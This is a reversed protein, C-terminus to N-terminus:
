GPERPMGRVYPWQLSFARLRLKEQLFAAAKHGDSSNGGYVTPLYCLFSNLGFTKGVQVGSANTRHITADGLVQLVMWVQWFASLGGPSLVHNFTHKRGIFFM